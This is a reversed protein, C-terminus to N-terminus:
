APVESWTEGDLERGGAKPTRGGWQKFLFLISADVCQDRLSRFWAPDSPRHKPGSEGGAIVWDIRPFCALSGAGFAQIELETWEPRLVVPGLLPECSLFHIRAPVDLLLPIRVDAWRQTEVTTGLWAHAPWDGLWELPVMRAVNEPRKTLLLWDLNPTEEILRWLRDRQAPLEPHDEFVDAMSACFVRRRVGDREANANWQLPENWHKDGFFRRESGKGWVDHGTRKAFAEAYCHQCAESVRTCGWWPNFTADAWEIATTQGM